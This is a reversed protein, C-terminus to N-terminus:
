GPLLARGVKLTDKPDISKSVLLELRLIPLHSGEESARVEQFHIFPLSMTEMAVSPGLCLM